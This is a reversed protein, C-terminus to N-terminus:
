IIEIIEVKVEGVKVDECGYDNLIKMRYLADSKMSYLKAKNIDNSFPEFSLNTYFGEECKVIYKIM